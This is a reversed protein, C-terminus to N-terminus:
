EISDALYGNEGDKLQEIEYRLEKKEARLEDIKQYQSDIIKNQDQLIMTMMVFIIFIAFFFIPAMKQMNKIQVTVMRETLINAIGKKM